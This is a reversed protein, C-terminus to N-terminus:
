VLADLWVVFAFAAAVLPAAHQQTRVNIVTKDSRRYYCDAEHMANRSLYLYQLYEANQPDSASYTPRGAAALWCDVKKIFPRRETGAIPFSVGWIAAYYKISAEAAPAALRIAPKLEGRTLHVQADNLENHSNYHKRLATVRKRIEEMDAQLSSRAPYGLVPSWVLENVREEWGIDDLTIVGPGVPEGADTPVFNGSASPRRVGSIDFIQWHLFERRYGVSSARQDPPYAQVHLEPPLEWLLKRVFLLLNRRLDADAADTDDPLQISGTARICAPWRRSLYRDEDEDVYQAAGVSPAQPILQAFTLPFPREVIALSLDCTIDPRQRPSARLSGLNGLQLSARSLFQFATVKM